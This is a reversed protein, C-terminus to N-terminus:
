REDLEDLLRKAEQLDRTDFGETFWGYIEALMQRAEATKGQQRWLRALSM